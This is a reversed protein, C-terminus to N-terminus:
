LTKISEVLEPFESQNFHKKNTFVITQANPLESKYEQAHAPIVIPDDESYIIFVKHEELKKLSDQL